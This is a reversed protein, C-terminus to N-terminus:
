FVLLYLDHFGCFAGQQCAAQSHEYADGHQSTGGKGPKGVTDYVLAVLDLGTGQGDVGIGIIQILITGAAEGNFADVAAFGEGKFLFALIQLFIRVGNEVLGQPFGAFGRSFQQLHLVVASQSGLDLQVKSYNVASQLIGQPKVKDLHLVSM